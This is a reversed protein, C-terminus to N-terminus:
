NMIKRLTDLTFLTGWTQDTISARSYTNNNITGNKMDNNRQKSSTLIM